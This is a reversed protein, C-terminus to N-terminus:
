SLILEINLGINLGINFVINLGINFVINIGMKSDYISSFMSCLISGCYQVGITFGINFGM